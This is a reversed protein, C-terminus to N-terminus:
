SLTVPKLPTYYKSLHAFFKWYVYTWFGTGVSIASHKPSTLMNLLTPSSGLVLTHLVAVASPIPTRRTQLIIRSYDSRGYWMWHTYAGTDRSWQALITNALLEKRITNYVCLKYSVDQKSILCSECPVTNHVKMIGIDPHIIIRV